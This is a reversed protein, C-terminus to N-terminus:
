REGIRHRGRFRCIARELKTGLHGKGGTSRREDVHESHYLRTELHSRASDLNLPGALGFDDCRMRFECRIESTLSLAISRQDGLLPSLCFRVASGLEYTIYVDHITDRRNVGARTDYAQVLRERSTIVYLTSLTSPWVWGLRQCTM